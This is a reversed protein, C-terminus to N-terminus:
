SVRQHGANMLLLQRWVQVSRRLQSHRSLSDAASGTRSALDSRCLWPEFQEQRSRYCTAAEFPAGRGNASAFLSISLCLLLGPHM